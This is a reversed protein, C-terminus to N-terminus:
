VPKADPKEKQLKRELKVVMEAQRSIIYILLDQTCARLTAVMQEEKM